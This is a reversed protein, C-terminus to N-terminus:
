PQKGLPEWPRLRFTNSLVKSVGDGPSILSLFTDADSQLSLPHPRATCPLPALARHTSLDPGSGQSWCSEAWWFRWLCSSQKVGAWSWCRGACFVSSCCGEEWGGCERNDWCYRANNCTVFSLVSLLIVSVCFLPWIKSCYTRCLAALRFDYHNHFMISVSSMM